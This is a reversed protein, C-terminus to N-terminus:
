EGRSDLYMVVGAINNEVRRDFNSWAGYRPEVQERVWAIMADSNDSLGAARAEAVLAILTEFYERAERFTDRSGIPGHGGILVDFDLHQEIWRFSELWEDLWRFGHIVQDQVRFMGSAFVSDHEIFDAGFAVRQVPDVILLNNDSHGLGVYHLDVSRGGLTLRLHDDVTVTPIPFNPDGRAAIKPVALWHSVFEATDAFVSGGGAHDAHDHCYIVYRVPQNTVSEIAARYAPARNPGNPNTAIVGEDTVIFMSNYGTMSFMYVGDAVQVVEPGDQAAAADAVPASAFHLTTAALTFSWLVLWHRAFPWTPVKLYPIRRPSWPARRM